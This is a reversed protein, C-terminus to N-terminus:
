KKCVGDDEPDGSFFSYKKESKDYVVCQYRQGRYADIQDWSVVAEGYVKHRLGIWLSAEIPMGSDLVLDGLFDEEILYDVEAAIQPVQTEWRIIRKPYAIHEILVAKDKPYLLHTNVSVSVQYMLVFVLLIAMKKKLYFTSVASIAIVLFPMSYLMFRDKSGFILLSSWFLALLTSVITMKKKFFLPISMVVMLLMMPTVLHAFDTMEVIRDLLGGRQVHPTVDNWGPTDMNLLQSIQLDFHGVTQLLMLNYVIVPALLVVFVAAPAHWQRNKEKYLHYVYAPVVVLATYKSLVALGLAGFALFLWKSHESRRIFGYVSLVIFFITLSEMMSSRAYSVVFPSSAWLAAALLGVKHGYLRRGVGAILLVVLSSAIAAPTRSGELADSRLVMFVHNIWFTLPPHDFFSFKTWSYARNLLQAPSKQVESGFNDQLTQSRISYFPEDPILGDSALGPIRLLLALLFIGLAM